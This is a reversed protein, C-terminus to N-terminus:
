SKFTLTLVDALEVKDGDRLLYRGKGEISSGNIKTGNTSGRDEIYCDGDEYYLRIHRRSILDADDSKMLSSFDSRGLSASGGSLPIVEGNSIVFRPGNDAPTTAPTRGATRTTAALYGARGNGTHSAAPRRVLLAIVVAAAVALLGLLTILLTSSNGALGNLGGTLINGTAPPDVTAVPTSSTPYYSVYPAVTITTSASVSGGSGSACLTYTTTCGPSLNYSGCVPVSGIGPSLTVSTANTTTWNLVIGQGCQIYSPNATFCTITPACIPPHYSQRIIIVKAPVYTSWRWNYPWPFPGNGTYPNYGPYYWSHPPTPPTPPLPPVPPIPPIPPTPPMPPIPPTPPPLPPSPPFPPYPPPLFSAGQPDTVNDSAFVQTVALLQASCLLLVAAAVVICNKFSM